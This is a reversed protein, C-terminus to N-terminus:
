IKYLLYKMDESLSTTMHNTNEYNKLLKHILIEKYFYKYLETTFSTNIYYKEKLITIYNIDSLYKNNFPM